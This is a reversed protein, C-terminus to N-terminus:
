GVIVEYTYQFPLDLVGADIAAKLIPAFPLYPGPEFTTEPVNPAAGNPVALNPVAGGVVRRVGAGIRIAVQNDGSFAVSVFSTDDIEGPGGDAGTLFRVIRRKLWKVTFTKGDGKWLQWTLCRKYVDDTTLYVESAGIRRLQNPALVNPAYTNLPGLWTNGGAPLVPRPYGYLGAGVWDLLSGSLGTWLALDVEAFWGVYEQAEGNFWDVFAQLDEDDDYQKYLYSPIVKTITTPGVPPFSGSPPVYPVYDSTSYGSFKHGATAANVSVNTTTGPPVDFWQGPFLEFTTGSSELDAADVISVFLNEATALGQKAATPPNAIRGGYPFPGYMAVVATGGVAISTRTAPYLRVGTM